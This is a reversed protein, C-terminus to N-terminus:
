DRRDCGRTEYGTPTTEPDVIMTVRLGDTDVDFPEGSPAVMEVTARNDAGIQASSIWIDPQDPLEIAAMGTRDVPLDVALRMGDELATVRCAPRADLVQSQAQLAAKIQPDPDTGAPPAVLTLRAPVCIAECLGIEIQSEIAIPDDPDTAHATFPLVLRDHYGLDLQDGSRIAQPTPWHFSVDRLNESGQWEFLPPLGTDGPSRWYTKWGPELRLELAMMRDGGPLSWGPLLQASVLGPPLEASTEPVQAGDSRWPSATLTQQAAAIGTTLALVATALLPIRTM